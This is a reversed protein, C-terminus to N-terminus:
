RTTPLRVYVSTGKGEQSKVWIKGGAGTVIGKAIYLGLGNGDPRYTNANSGRVFKGFIKPLDKAPIGYGQDRVEIDVYGEKGAVRVTITSNAPSYASANEILEMIVGSLLKKEVMVVVKSKPVVLELTQKRREVTAQAKLAGEAAAPKERGGPRLFSAKFVPLSRFAGLKKKRAEQEDQRVPQPEKHAAQPHGASDDSSSRSAEAGRLLLLFSGARAGLSRKM